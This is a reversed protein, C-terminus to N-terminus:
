PWKRKGKLQAAAENAFLVNGGKAALKRAGSRSFELAAYDRSILYVPSESKLAEMAYGVEFTNEAEHGLYFIVSRYREPALDFTVIRASDPAPIARVINGTSVRPGVRPMVGATLWAAFLAMGLGLVWPAARLGLGRVYSVVVSGVAGAAMLGVMVYAPWGAEPYKSAIAASGAVAIALAIVVMVWQAIRIGLRSRGTLEDANSWLVGVLVAAAPYLPFIYTVLVTKSVSFVVFVVLIWVTALMAGDNAKRYRLLAQPLFVSWPFFFVLLIPFNLFHSYWGGTVSQHEAEVFRTLNNAVLFGQVFLDGHLRYMLIFWPVGVLFMLLLGVLAPGSVLLKGRRTVWLHMLVAFCLLFAFVPSKALMSLGACAGFLLAWGYTAGAKSDIWRRYAYLAGTICAVLTMDTVCARSLVIQQICTAMVLGALLGAKRGFDHAALWFVLFVVLVAMLASPLRCAAETPGLLSISSACLWYFLPPKDFWLEGAYHPSLWDGSQVMERSMQGYAPEDPDTLPYSGLGVFFLLLLGTAILLGLALKSLM